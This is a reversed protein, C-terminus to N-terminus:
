GTSQEYFGRDLTYAGLAPAPIPALRSFDMRIGLPGLVRRRLQRVVTTDPALRRLVRVLLLYNTHAYNMCSGPDCAFGRGLATDLLERESWIRFPNANIADQFPVNGQVWDLYGSTNNMLMRLSVQSTRPINPLWKSVPDSLKLRGEDRLQYFVTTLAPITMSGIRFNMRPTAPVGNQSQGYARRLVRQGAIDVRAIVAELHNESKVSRVIQDLAHNVAAESRCGDATSISSGPCSTGTASSGAAATATPAAWGLMLVLASLAVLIASGSKTGRMTSTHFM